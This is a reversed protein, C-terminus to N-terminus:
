LCEPLSLLNNPQEGDNRTKIYKNGLASTAVIVDIPSGGRNVYFSWRGDEIGAIAEEQAIQWSQGDPNKGGIKEIRDHASQRNTKKICKIEHRTAM